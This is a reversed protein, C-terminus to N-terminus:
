KRFRKEEEHCVYQAISFAYLSLSIYIYITSQLLLELGNPRLEDLMKLKCLSNLKDLAIDSLRKLQVWPAVTGKASYVLQCSFLGRFYLGTNCIDRVFHCGPLM